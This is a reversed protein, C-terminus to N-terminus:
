IKYVDGPAIKSVFPIIASDCKWKLECSFDPVRIMMRNMTEKHREWFARKQHHCARILMKLIHPNGKIMAEELPSNALPAVRHKPDAGNKLLVVVAAM